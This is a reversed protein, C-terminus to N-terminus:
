PAIGLARLRTEDLLFWVAADSVLWAAGAALALRAIWAVASARWAPATPEDLLDRAGAFITM